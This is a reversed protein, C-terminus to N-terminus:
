ANFVEQYYNTNKNTLSKKVQQLWDKSPLSYPRFKELIGETENSFLAFNPGLKSAAPTDILNSSDDPTLQFVVKMEFERLHKRELTKALNGYDDCWVITHIGLSAGERLIDSFKDATTQSLEENYSVNFDESARLDRVKQLGYIFLYISVGQSIASDEDALRNDLETKLEDIAEEIQKSSRVYKVPHPFTESVTKLIESQESNTPLYNFIYFKAKSPPLQSTLSVVISIFQGIAVQENKGVILLNSGGQWVFTAVTPDKIAVPNGLWALIKPSPETWISRNILESLLDNTEINASENGEFVIQPSSRKYHTALAKQKIKSLYLTRNTDKDDMLFAVQFLSNSEILGNADNYIAEGPRSLLRAAPNDEGLILRSDAESCQLAIRVAMQDATAKPLTYSGALTQSGLVVHIGFARGQRVLRDLFQASRAAINDDETFFEQFEDVLLLLRPMIIGTTERYRGIREVGVSRFLDGRRTLEKDLGELVSLGFERQSEIAIVNAHPLALEAYKKFEVGKKFDILYFQLEKPSYNLAANIIMVHLLNSKGSGVRGAILANHATGQGLLFMQTKKAGARGLSIQVGEITRKSWYDEEKPAIKAFPTEVRSANQSERGVTHIIYNFVQMHPATDLQIPCGDFDPDEWIFGAQTSVLVNSNQELEEINFGFPLPKTTDAVVITHVGCRAGQRAISVLRQASDETFNVPFDFVILLRYPEAVEGAEENYEEISKYQERLYKEIVTQMHETLNSLQQEVHHRESWSKGTVLAENYDQLNMFVAVNQGLGVPDIFTFRLKSPPTTALLRLLVSRVADIAQLRNSSTTRFVIPKGGIVPLLAPVIVKKNPTLQNFEGFRVLGPLVGKEVPKWQKWAPSNWPLASYGSTNVIHDVDPILHELINHYVAKTKTLAHAAKQTNQKILNIQNSEDRQFSGIFQVLTNLLSDIM